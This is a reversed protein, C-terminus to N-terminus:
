HSFTEVPLQNHKHRYSSVNQTYCCVFYTLVPKTLTNLVYNKRM